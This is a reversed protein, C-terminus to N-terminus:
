SCTTRKRTLELLDQVDEYFVNVERIESIRFEGNKLINKAPAVSIKTDDGTHFYSCNM